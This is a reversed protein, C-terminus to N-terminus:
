VQRDIIRHLLDIDLGSRIADALKDYQKNKFGELDFPTLDISVGEREALRSLLAKVVESQKLLGHIYTGFVNKGNGRLIPADVEDLCHGSHIEYGDFPLGSLCSLEGSVTNIKGKTQHQDKEETFITTMDLHGLGDIRDITETELHDPDLIERGLMQYGACVGLVLGGDAIHQELREALGSERLWVLDSTTCTSGPLIALAPMGFDEPDTIYRVSVDDYLEPSFYDSACALHPTKMVVIDIAKRPKHPILRDSLSDEDELQLDIHPITGLVPVGCLEELTTLGPRLLDIDGRFKNVILGKVREKEEPQLLATTGYLQAFIGGRDIDGVLLVPADVRKALGMNVIDDRHLNLEVPSGAGEIVIIDSEAALSEYSQMIEPILEARYDMYDRASLTSRQHGNVVLKSGRDSTPKLLVPNMRVDPRILCAEAQMAQATSMEGGDYTIYSNSAMNQSKFPAVRYGEQTLIRCIGAAVLSKGASSMTGQIMLNKMM